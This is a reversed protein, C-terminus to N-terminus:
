YWLHNTKSSQNRSIEGNQKSLTSDLLKSNLLVINYVNTWPVSTKGSGRKTGHITLETTIAQCIAADMDHQSSITNALRIRITEDDVPKDEIGELDQVKV